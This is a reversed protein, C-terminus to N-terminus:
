RLVFFERKVPFEESKEALLFELGGVVSTRWGPLPQMGAARYGAALGSVTAIALTAARRPQRYQATRGGSGGAAIKFRAKGCSRFNLRPASIIRCPQGASNGAIM